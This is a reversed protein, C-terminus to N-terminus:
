HHAAARPPAHPATVPRAASAAPRHPPSDAEDEGDRVKVAFGRMSWGLMFGVALTLFLGSMMFVLTRRVADDGSGFAGISWMMPTLFLVGMAASMGLRMWGVPRFWSFRYASMTDEQMRIM